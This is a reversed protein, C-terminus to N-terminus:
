LKIVGISSTSELFLIILNKKELYLMDRIRENLTISKYKKLNDKDFFYIHLSMDGESVNNGLSSALLIKQDLMDFLILESIGISPTYNKTPEIFGYDKHSKFLPAIKYLKSNDVEIVKKERKYPIELKNLANELHLLNKFSTKLNTFHSM